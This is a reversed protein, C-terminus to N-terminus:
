KKDAKVIKKIINYTSIITFGFTSVACYFVKGEISRILLSDNKYKNITINDM